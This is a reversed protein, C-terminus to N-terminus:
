SVQTVFLYGIIKRYVLGGKLKYDIHNAIEIVSGQWFKFLKSIWWFM